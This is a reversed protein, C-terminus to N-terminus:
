SIKEFYEIDLITGTRKPKEKLVVRVKDGMSVNGKTRHVLGGYAGPFRVLAVGVPQALETGDADQHCL